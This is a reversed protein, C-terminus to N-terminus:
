QLKKFMFWLYLICIFFYMIGLEIYAWFNKPKKTNESKMIM